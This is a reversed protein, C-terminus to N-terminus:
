PRNEPLTPPGPTPRLSSFGSSAGKSRVPNIRRSLLAKRLRILPKRPKDPAAVNRLM